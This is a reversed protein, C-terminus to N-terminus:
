DLDSIISIKRMYVEEGELVKRVEEVTINYLLKKAKEIIFQEVELYDVIFPADEKPPNGAIGIKELYQNELLLILVVERYGFNEKMSPPLFELVVNICDEYVFYM